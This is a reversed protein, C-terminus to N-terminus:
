NNRKKLNEKWQIYKQDAIEKGFKELWVSYFSKGFMGNNKGKSSGKEIRSKSLKQKHEETKPKSLKQKHEETKPKSLKKLTEETYIHGFMPNNEGEYKGLHAQRNKEKAECTHKKGYMRNNEGSSNKSRKRKIEPRNSIEKNIISMKKRLQERNPHNTFNDGGNEDIAICYGYLPNWANFFYKCEKECHSLEEPTYCVGLIIKKLFYTGRSKIINKIRKGSGFYYTTKEVEGKKQGIYVLNYKQDFTVYVYGYYESTLNDNQDLYKQNMIKEKWIKLYLFTSAKKYKNTISNLLINASISSVPLYKTPNVVKRSETTLGIQWNNTIM